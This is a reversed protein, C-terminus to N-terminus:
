ISPQFPTRRGGASRAPHASGDVLMKPWSGPGRGGWLKMHCDFGRLDDYLERAIALACGVLAPSEYYRRRQEQVARMESLALWGCQLDKLDLFYGNGIQETSSKWRQLDLAAVAPTVIASGRLHEVDEVLHLIARDEPKCHADLFVLVDGRAEQSGLHRAPGAGQRETLEVVRIQPFRRRVEHVSDDFSADDVVIIEYDEGACTEACSALTKWLADGENYCAIIVSFRM